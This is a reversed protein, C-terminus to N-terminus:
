QIFKRAFWRYVIFRVSFDTDDHMTWKDGDLLAKNGVLLLRHLYYPDQLLPLLTERAATKNLIVGRRIDDNNSESLKQMVAQPTNINNAVGCLVDVDDDHQLQLLLDVPANDQYAVAARVWPIEDKALQELLDKPCKTNRAVARRVDKHEDKALEVLLHAPMAPNRAVWSRVWHYSDKAMFELLSSSLDSRCAIARRVASVEDKALKSMDVSSLNPNSAAVRRVSSEDHDVLKTLVNQGIRENGALHRLIMANPSECADELLALPCNDHTVVAAKIYDTGRAYMKELLDKNTNLHVTIERDFHSPFRQDIMMLVCEDANPNSCVAKIIQLDEQTSAIELLVEASTNSHQAILDVLKSSGVELYQQKLTAEDTGPNKNIRLHVSEDYQQALVKLVSAPTHEWRALMLLNRRENCFIDELISRQQDQALQHVAVAAYMDKSDIAAKVLESANQPIM